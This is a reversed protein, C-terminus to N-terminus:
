VEDSFAQHVKRMFEDSKSFYDMSPTTVLDHLISQPLHFARSDIVAASFVERVRFQELPTEPRVYAALPVSALLHFFRRRTM